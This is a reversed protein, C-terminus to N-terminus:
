KTQVLQTLKVIKDKFNACLERIIKVEKSEKNEKENEQCGFLKM